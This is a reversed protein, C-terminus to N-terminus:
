VKKFTSLCFTVIINRLHDHYMSNKKSKRVFCWEDWIWRIRPVYRLAEKLLVHLAELVHSTCDAGTKSRSRVIAVPTSMQVGLITWSLYFLVHSKWDFFALRDHTRWVIYCVLHPLLLNEHNGWMYFFTSNREWSSSEFPMVKKCFCNPM